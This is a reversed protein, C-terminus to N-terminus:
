RWHVAVVTYATHGERGTIVAPGVRVWAHAKMVAQEDKRVGLYAVYPIRYWRCWIACTLAQVLCKSEWPTYRSTLDACAGIRWALEIQQQSALMSIQKLGRHRGLLWGYAKFPLVLIAVRLLGMLPWMLIFWIRKRLPMRVLFTKLKGALRGM